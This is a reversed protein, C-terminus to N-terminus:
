RNWSEIMSENNIELAQFYTSFLRESILVGSGAEYKLKSSLGRLVEPKKGPWLDNGYFHEFFNVAM